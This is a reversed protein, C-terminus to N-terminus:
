DVNGLLSWGRTTRTGDGGKVRAVKETSAALTILDNQEQTTLPKAPATVAPRELTTTSM